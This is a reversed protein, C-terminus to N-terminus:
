DRELAAMLDAISRSNQDGQERLARIVRNRRELPHNQNLKWKGEIRDLEIEFGVIAELLRNIFNGDQADIPWPSPMGAEYVNITQRLRQLLRDGDEDVRLTGYAHVAVYNWTPVVQQAEYWTPSIYAHPGHFIALVRQGDTGKWQPNARAMHGLLCGHTGAQREILLPLHSALPETQNTSILTAFSHREIFDFLKDPDTEAFSAPIYM